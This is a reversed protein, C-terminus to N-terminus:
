EIDAEDVTLTSMQTCTHTVVIQQGLRVGPQEGNKIM